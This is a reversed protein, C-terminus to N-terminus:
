GPPPRSLPDLLTSGTKQWCFYNLFSLPTIASPIALLENTTALLQGSLWICSQCLAMPTLMEPASANPQNSCSSTSTPRTNQTLTIEELKALDFDPALSLLENRLLPLLKAMRERIRRFWRYVTGIDAPSDDTAHQWVQALSKHSRQEFYPAVTEVSYRVRGFLFSPLLAHTILCTSCRIRQIRIDDANPLIRRGYTGWFFLHRPNM